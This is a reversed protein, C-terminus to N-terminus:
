VLTKAQLYQDLIEQYEKETIITQESFNYNYIDEFFNEFYLVVFVNLKGTRGYRIIEEDVLNPLMELNDISKENVSLYKFMIYTKFELDSMMIKLISLRENEELSSFINMITEVSHSTSERLFSKNHKKKILNSFKDSLNVKDERFHPNNTKEFLLQNIVPQLVKYTKKILDEMIHM